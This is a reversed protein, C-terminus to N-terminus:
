GATVSARRSGSPLGAAALRVPEFSRRHIACPGLRDLAAYHQPAPYGKHSAFGYGPYRADHEVMLVTSGMDALKRLNDLLRRTDRSHLGITPEDLVYLAGTLGSGLQAALRLRQM